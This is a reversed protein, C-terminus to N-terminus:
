KYRRRYIKDLAAEREQRRRRIDRVFTYLIYVIGAFALAVVAAIFVIQLIVGANAATPKPSRRIKMSSFAADATQLDEQSLASASNYYVLAYYKGAFISFYQVFCFEGDPSSVRVRVRYFQTGSVAARESGLVTMNETEELGAIIRRGADEQNEPTLGTLDYLEKSLDNEIVKLNLQRKGDQTVAFLLTGSERLNKAFNEADMGLSEIFAKESKANKENLIKFGDPVQVSIGHGAPSVTEAAYAPVAFVSLPLLSFVAAALVTRAYLSFRRAHVPPIRRFPM